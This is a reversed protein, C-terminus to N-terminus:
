KLKRAYVCLKNFPLEKTEPKPKRRMTGIIEFGTKDFLEKFEAENMLNVFLKRTEDLPEIIIKEESGEQHIIFLIGNPKLVRNFEKLATPVEKKPLHYLTFGIFLADFEENGYELKRLDMLRFKTKPFNKQAIELMKKSLDIGEVKYGKKSLFKTLRGTGCGVDLVRAGPKVLSSFKEVFPKDDALIDKTDYAKDYEGAIADYDEINMKVYDQKMNVM